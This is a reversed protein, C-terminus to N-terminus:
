ILLEVAEATIYPGSAAPRLRRHRTTVTSGLPGRHEGVEVQQQNRHEAGCIIEQGFSDGVAVADHGVRLDDREANRLRDHPDGGVLPEECGGPCPEAVQERDQRLPGAVVLPALPEGVRDFRQNAHESAVTGTEVVVQQQDVRGRDLAGARDFRRPAALEGVGGVVAVAGAVAAVEPAETQVAQECEVACGPRELEGGGFGVFAVDAQRQQASDFAVLREGRDAVLAVGTALELLLGGRERDGDDPGGAAVFWSGAWVERWDSLPDFRDELGAFVEQREFAVAGAGQVAGAGADAAAEERECGCDAEVVAEASWWAGEGGVGGSVTSSSM